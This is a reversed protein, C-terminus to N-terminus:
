HHMHDGKVIRYFATSLILAMYTFIGIVGLTGPLSSKLVNHYLETLTEM